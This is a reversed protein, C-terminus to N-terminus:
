SKTGVAVLAAREITATYGSDTKEVAIEGLTNRIHVQVRSLIQKPDNTIKTLDYMYYMHWTARAVAEEATAGSLTFPDRMQFVRVDPFGAETLLRFMEERTFHPYDHGTTSFPHVVEDFWKAVSGGVEFDHLVLRGSPKLTRFAEACSSARAAQDLHHAGYAILVGDLSNDKLLSRAVSQRICPLGQRLCADIMFGSLDASVITPGDLDRFFRSVTGDGALGDVIISSKDPLASGNKCFCQMLSTMGISRNDPSEQARNYAEGRGKRGIGEFEWSIRNLQEVYEDALGNSLHEEDILDVLFPHMAAMADLYQHFSKDPLYHPM